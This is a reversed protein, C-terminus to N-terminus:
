DTGSLDVYRYNSYITYVYQFGGQVECFNEMTDYLVRGLRPEIQWGWTPNGNPDPVPSWVNGLRSWLLSNNVISHSLASGRGPSSMVPIAFNVNLDQRNIADFASADFSGFPPLGAAPQQQAVGGPPIFFLFVTLTLLRKM